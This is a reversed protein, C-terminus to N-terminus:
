IDQMLFAGGPRLARRVNRLVGAPDAQDHVADFATVLDFEATGTLAAADRVAFRANGVGRRRAEAGAAAIAGASFDYGVFRSAPFLEALRLVARGSGCGIDLVDIGAALQAPLGPILPLIHAELGAVTTQDSLEAMVPHFREYASYPVGKGHHFAEVVEDEVAGLVAVFQMPVALNNPRAARTLFAAHEPPLRYTGAAPDHEVVGGTTMAGLWERVYRESLGAAAAIRGPDAPPGGAMVDFLGTRHGISTMLAVAAGNLTAVMKGAFAEAKAADFGSATPM